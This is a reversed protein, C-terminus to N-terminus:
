DRVNRVMVIIFVIASIIITAVVVDQIVLAIGSAEVLHEKSVSNFWAYGFFLIIMLAGFISAVKLFCGMGRQFPTEYRPYMDYDDFRHKM